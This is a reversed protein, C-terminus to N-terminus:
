AALATLRVIFATASNISLQAFLRLAWGYMKTAQLPPKVEIVCTGTVMVSSSSLVHRQRNTKKSM